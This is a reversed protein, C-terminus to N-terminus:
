EEKLPRSAELRKILWIPPGLLWTTVLSFGRSFFILYSAPLMNYAPIQLSHIPSYKSIIANFM